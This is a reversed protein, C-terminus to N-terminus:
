AVGNREQILALLLHETGIYGHGLHRAEGLSGCCRKRGRRSRIHGSPSRPVDGTGVVQEVRERCRQWPPHRHSELAKVGM